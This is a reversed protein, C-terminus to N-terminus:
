DDALIRHVRNEFEMAEAEDMANALSLMPVAHAVPAFQAAPAAGVRQTPSDPARLEPHRAEIEALRHFLRDYEEDSIAPRDLVYYLRNHKEIERRLREAERTTKETAAM